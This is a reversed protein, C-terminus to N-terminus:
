GHSTITKVTTQPYSTALSPAPARRHLRQRQGHHHRHLHRSKQDPLLSRRLLCDAQEPSNTFTIQRASIVAGSVDVPFGALKPSTDTHGLSNGTIAITFDEGFSGNADVDSFAL